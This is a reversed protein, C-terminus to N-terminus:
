RLYTHSNKQSKRIIACSDSMCEYVCTLAWEISLHYSPYLTQLGVLSSTVCAAPQISQFLCVNELAEKQRQNTLYLQLKKQLLTGSLPRDAQLLPTFVFPILSTNSLLVTHAVTNISYARIECETKLTIQNESQRGAKRIILYTM